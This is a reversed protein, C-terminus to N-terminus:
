DLEDEMKDKIANITALLYQLRYDSDRGEKFTVNDAELLQNILRLAGHNMASEVLASTQLQLKSM